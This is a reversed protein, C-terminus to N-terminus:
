NADGTTVPDPASGLTANDPLLARLGPPIAGRHWLSNTIGSWQPHEVAFRQGGFGLHSRDASNQEGMVCSYAIGGAAFTLRKRGRDTSIGRDYERAFELWFACEDEVWKVIHNVQERYTGGRSISSSMRTQAADAKSMVRKSGDRLTALLLIEASHEPRTDLFPHQATAQGDTM